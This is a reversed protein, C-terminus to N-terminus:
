RQAALVGRVIADCLVDHSVADLFADSWPFSSAYSAVVGSVDSRYAAPARNWFSTAIEATLESRAALVRIAEIRALWGRNEDAAVVRIRQLAGENAQAAARSIVRLVWAMQWDSVYRGEALMPECVEFVRQPETASLALLYSCLDDTESPLRTLADPVLTLARSDKAQALRQLSYVIRAHRLQAPLESNGSVADRFLEVLVDTAGAELFPAILNRFDRADISGHYFYRWQADEDIEYQSALIALEEDSRDELDTIRAAHIQARFSQTAATLDELQATYDTVGVVEIKRANMMLANDRLSQELLHASRVAADHSGAWLRYDDGHRVFNVGRALLARDVAALYLTALSDSSGLGQPLGRDAGMLASLLGLLTDTLDADVGADALARRLRHHDVSEYCGAVDGLVIFRGGAAIPANEFGRWDGSTGDARPWITVTTAPLRRAIRARMRDVLAEYVV